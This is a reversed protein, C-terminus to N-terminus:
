NQVFTFCFWDLFTMFHRSDLIWFLRSIDPIVTKHCSMAMTLAAADSRRKEAEGRM